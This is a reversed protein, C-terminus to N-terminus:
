LIEEGDQATPSDMGFLRQLHASTAKIDKLPPFQVEASSDEEDGFGVQGAVTANSANSNAVVAGAGAGGGGGGAAAAAAATAAQQAAEEQQQQMM